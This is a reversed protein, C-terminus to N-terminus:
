AGSKTPFVDEDEVLNQVWTMVYDIYTPAPLYVSKREQNIWTYSLSFIDDPDTSRPYVIALITSVECQCVYNSMDQSYLM